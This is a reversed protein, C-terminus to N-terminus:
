TPPSGRNAATLRALLDGLQPLFRELGTAFGAALELGDVLDDLLSTADDLIDDDLLGAPEPQVVEHHERLTLAYAFRDPRGALQRVRLDDVVVQEVETGNVIDAVFAVPEGAELHDRLRRVVDLAQPDTAMGWLVVSTPARGLDQLLSGAKDPPKHEALARRDATRVEQVQPLELDAVMPRLPM